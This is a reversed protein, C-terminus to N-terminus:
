HGQGPIVLGQPKPPTVIRQRAQEQMQAQMMQERMTQVASAVADERLTELLFTPVGTINDKGAVDVFALKLADLTANLVTKDFDKDNAQAFQKSVLMVYMRLNVLEKKPAAVLTQAHCAFGVADMRGSIPVMVVGTVHAEPLSAGITYLRNTGDYGNAFVLLDM